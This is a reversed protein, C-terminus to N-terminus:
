INLSYGPLQEGSGDYRSYYEGGHDSGVVKIKKSLQNEVEAKFNKFVDLSQSLHVLIDESLQLKLAKLRTVLNSMEMIYERINEKGKYRMSVLKSLITNTEVKENAAFRKALEDLFGHLWIMEKGAETAACSLKLSKSQLEWIRMAFQKSLQKKLNNIKKLTLGLNEQGQVIFGEPQIMYLDEELDGHLFATKVDLQELHLNEAAVMGLVLRITSM